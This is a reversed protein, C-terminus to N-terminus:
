WFAENMCWVCYIPSDDPFMLIFSYSKSFELVSGLFACEETRGSWELGHSKWFVKFSQDLANIKLVIECHLFQLERVDLKLKFIVLIIFQHFIWSWYNAWCVINPASSLNRWIMESCYWRLILPYVLHIHCAFLYLMHRGAQM